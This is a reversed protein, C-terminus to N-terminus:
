DAQRVHSGDCPHYVILQRSHITAWFSSSVLVSLPIQDFHNQMQQYVRRQYTSTPGASMPMDLRCPPISLLPHIPIRFSRLPPSHSLRLPFHFKAANFTFSAGKLNALRNDLDEHVSMSINSFSSSEIQLDLPCTSLSSPRKAKGRERSAKLIYASPHRLYRQSGKLPSSGKSFEEPDRKNLARADGEPWNM